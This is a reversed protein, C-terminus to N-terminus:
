VKFKKLFEKPYQKLIEDESFSFRYNKIYDRLIEYARNVEAARSGSGSVDPHLKSIASKYRKKIDEM